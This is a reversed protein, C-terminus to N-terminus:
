WPWVGDGETETNLFRGEQGDKEGQVIRLMLEASVIPDRAMGNGTIAEESTGRFNSKVFGPCMIFVKLPVGGDKVQALEQLALQNLAAKSARYADGSGFGVKYFADTPDAAKTQSGVGSSVYISRADLSKLLLPRFAESM